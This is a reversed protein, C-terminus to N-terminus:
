LRKRGAACAQIRNLASAQQLGSIRAKPAAKLEKVRKHRARMCTVRETDSECRRGHGPSGSEALWCAAVWTSSSVIV